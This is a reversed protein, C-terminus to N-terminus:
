PSCRGSLRSIGGIVISCRSVGDAVVASPTFPTPSDPVIPGAAAIALATASASASNSTSDDLGGDRRRGHECSSAGRARVRPEIRRAGPRSAPPRGTGGGRSTPPPREGRQGLVAVLGLRQRAALAQDRRHVEAQGLRRDEDVQLQDLRQPRDRSRSPASCTPAITRWRCASREGSTLAAHGSNLSASGHIPWRCFRFRPVIPPLMAWASGAASSGATATASSAVM